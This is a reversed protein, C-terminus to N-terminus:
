FAERGKAKGGPAPLSCSLSASNLSSSRTCSSLLRVMNCQERQHKNPHEDLPKLLDALKIARYLPLKVFEYGCIARVFLVSAM